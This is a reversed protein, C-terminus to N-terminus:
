FEFVVLLWFKKLPSRLEGSSWCPVALELMGMRVMRGCSVWIIDEEMLWDIGLVCNRM